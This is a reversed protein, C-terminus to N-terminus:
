RSRELSSADGNGAVRGPSCGDISTMEVELAVPLPGRIGHAVDFPSLVVRYDPLAEARRRPLAMSTTQTFMSSPDHMIKNNIKNIGESLHIKCSKQGQEKALNRGKTMKKIISSPVDLKPLIRFLRRKISVHWKGTEIERSINEWFTLFRRISPFLIAIYFNSIVVPKLDKLIIKQRTPTQDSNQSHAYQLPTGIRRKNIPTRHYLLQPLICTAGSSNRFSKSNEFSRIRTFKQSKCQCKLFITTTKPIVFINRRM